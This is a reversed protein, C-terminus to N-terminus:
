ASSWKEDLNVATCIQFSDFVKDDNLVQNQKQRELTSSAHDADKLLSSTGDQLVRSDTNLFM